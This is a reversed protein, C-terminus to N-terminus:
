CVHMVSTDCICCMHVVYTDCICSMHMVSPDCTYYLHIVASGIAGRAEGGSHIVCLCADVVNRTAGM